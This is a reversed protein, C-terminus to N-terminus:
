FVLCNMDASESDHASCFLVFLKTMAHVTTSINQTINHWKHSIKVYNHLRVRNLGFYNCGQGRLESNM